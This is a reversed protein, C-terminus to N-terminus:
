GGTSGVRGWLGASLNRALISIAWWAVNAGFVAGGGTRAALSFWAVRGRKPAWWRLYKSHSWWNRASQVTM